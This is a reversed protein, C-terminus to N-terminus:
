LAQLSQNDNSSQIVLANLLTGHDPFSLGIIQMIIMDKSGVDVGRAMRPLFGQSHTRSGSVDCVQKQAADDFVLGLMQAHLIYLLCYAPCEILKATVRNANIDRGAFEAAPADLGAFCEDKHALM